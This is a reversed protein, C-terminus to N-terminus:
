IGKLTRISAVNAMTVCAASGDCLSVFIRKCDGAGVVFSALAREAAEQDGEQRQLVLAEGDTTYVVLRFYQKDRM